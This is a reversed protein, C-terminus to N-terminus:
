LHGCAMLGMRVMTHHNAGMSVSNGPLANVIRPKGNATHHLGPQAYTEGSADMLSAVVPFSTSEGRRLVIATDGNDLKVYTGPPCLGITRVLIFGVEDSRSVDHGLLSRMSETASRGTRSKRPSIFAAYRDVTALTRVLRERATLNKLPERARDQQFSHHSAVADLWLADTVGMQELLARSRAAHRNVASQQHANIPDAREALEDQLETISINMTFAARVLTDRETRPLGLELGLIHCLAACVLAHSTSYGVANTSALQLMLYLTADVDQAVLEQLWQDLQRIKPIFDHVERPRHLVFGLAAQMDGWQALLEEYPNTTAAEAVLAARTSM